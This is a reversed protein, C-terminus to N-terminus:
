SHNPTGNENTDLYSGQPWITSGIWGAFAGILGCAPTGVFIFMLAALSGMGCSATGPPLSAATVSERYFVYAGFAMPCASALIAGTSIWGSSSRSKHTAAGNGLETETAQYPNTSKM